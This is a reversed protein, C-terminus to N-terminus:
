GRLYDQTDAAMAVGRDGDVIVQQGDSLVTTGRGCGMVAPLGYERAVIAAHSAMGGHDVVVAAARIFLPTWSPNTTPCVLVEGGRLLGFQEPGHVVRVRGTARGGAGPAGSVLVDAEREADPYLTSTAILPAGALAAYAARRRRVTAALRKMTAPSIEHPDTITAVEPWSLYWIDDRDTIAGAAALRRGAEVVAGRTVPMLRTAEFHTDERLAVASAAAAVLRRVWEQSNTRLIVPHNLLTDLSGEGRTATSADPRESALMAVLTLM